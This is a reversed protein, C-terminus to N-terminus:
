EFIIGRSMEDISRDNVFLLCMGLHDALKRGEEMHVVREKAMDCKNGILIM